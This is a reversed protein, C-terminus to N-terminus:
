TVPQSKDIKKVFNIMLHAWRKGFFKVLNSLKLVGFDLLKGFTIRLSEALKGYIIRLSEAFKGYTVRLSEAFEGRLKRAFFAVPTRGFLLLLAGIGCFVVIPWAFGM